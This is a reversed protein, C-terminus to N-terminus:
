KYDNFLHFFDKYPKGANSYMFKRAQEPERLMSGNMEFYERLGDDGRIRVLDDQPHARSILIFNEGSGIIRVREEEEGDGNENGLPIVLSDKPVDTTPTQYRKTVNQRQKTSQKRMKTISTDLWEIFFKGDPDRQLILEIAPWCEEFDRGLVKKIQDLTLHGFKRQSIVLDHYAGRELRNMHTTDRAADGDYYTFCFDEKAM